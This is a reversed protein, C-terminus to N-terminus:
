WLTYISHDRPFLVLVGMIEPGSAKGDEVLRLVFAFIVYIM